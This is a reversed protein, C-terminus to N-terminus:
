CYMLQPVCVCVQEEDGTSPKNDDTERETWNLQAWNMEILHVESWNLEIYKVSM